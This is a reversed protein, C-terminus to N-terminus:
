ISRHAQHASRRVLPGGSLRVDQHTFRKTLPGGSSRVEQRTFRKAFSRRPPRDENLVFRKSRHSNDHKRLSLSQSNQPSMPM